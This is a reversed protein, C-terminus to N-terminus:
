IANGVVTADNHLQALYRESARHGVRAPAIWFISPEIRAGSARELALVGSPTTHSDIKSAPFKDTVTEDNQLYRRSHVTISIGAAM